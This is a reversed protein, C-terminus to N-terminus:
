KIRSRYMRILKLSLPYAALGLLAALISSGVIFSALFGWQAAIRTWFDSGIFGQDLGARFIEKLLTGDIRVRMVWMGVWTAVTYYPVIWWPTNTWAGLLMAVRNLRLLFAIGIAGLTHLGLFPSYGLFVGISFALATREPTDEIHLLNRFLKIPRLM